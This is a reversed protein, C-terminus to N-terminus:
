FRFRVNSHLGPKSQAGGGGAGSGPGGGVSFSERQFGVHRVPSWWVQQKDTDMDWTAYHEREEPGSETWGNALLEEKTAYCLFAISSKDTIDSISNITEEPPTTPRDMQRIFDLTATDIDSQRVKEALNRQEATEKRKQQINKIFEFTEDVSMASLRRQM